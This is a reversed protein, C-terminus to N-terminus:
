RWLYFEKVNQTSTKIPNKNEKPALYREVHKRQSYNIANRFNSILTLHKGNPYM